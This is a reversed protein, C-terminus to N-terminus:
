AARFFGVAEILRTSSDRLADASRSLEGVLSTNQQTAKDLENMAGNVVGVRGKGGQELRKLIDDEVTRLGLMTSRVTMLSTMEDAKRKIEEATITIGYAPCRSEYGGPVRNFEWPAEPLNSSM